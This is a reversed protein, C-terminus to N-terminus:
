AIVATSDGTGSLDIDNETEPDIPALQMNRRQRTELWQAARAMLWILIFYVVGVMVYAQFNGVETDPLNSLGAGRRVFEAYGIVYGLSVDKTLTAMQAVIAPVMRRVAQPLVVLFMTQWYTMGVSQAAETQGRDLSLVGSRFIESLVASNYLTLGLVVSGFVGLRDESGFLWFSGLITLLLPIGRFLEVWAIAFGRVFSTKSLRMLALGFGVANAFIGAVIAASVTSWLGQALFKIIPGSFLDTWKQAELQGNDALRRFAFFVLILLAVLSVTTWIQVKRKGKPGLEEVLNNSTSM